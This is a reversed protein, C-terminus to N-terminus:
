EIDGDYITIHNKEFDIILECDVEHVLEKLDDLSDIKICWIKVLKNKLYECGFENLYSNLSPQEQQGDVINSARIINFIM